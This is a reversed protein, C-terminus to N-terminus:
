CSRAYVCGFYSCVYGGGFVADGDADGYGSDSDSNCGFVMRQEADM